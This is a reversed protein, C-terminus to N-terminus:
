SRAPDQSPAAAGAPEGNPLPELWEIRYGRERAFEEIEERSQPITILRTQRYYGSGSRAWHCM